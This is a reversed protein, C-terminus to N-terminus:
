ETASYIFPFLVLGAAAFMCDFGILIKFWSGTEEQLPPASLMGAGLRIAALLLPLLLPFLILSLLSEKAARGQAIAGLLSGAAALGINALLLLGLIQHLPGELSQDLFILLAPAFFAQAALLFVFGALAKGLWISQVPARTLLLAQRQGNDEELAYLSNFTLVQCFLTSVWFITAAAQASFTEALGRALSFIFILLLGLLMAQVLGTGRLCILTLDKHALILASRIM